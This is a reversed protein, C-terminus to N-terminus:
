IIEARFHFERSALALSPLRTPFHTTFISITPLANNRPSHTTFLTRPVNHNIDNRLASAPPRPQSRSLRILTFPLLHALSLFSRKWDTGQMPLYALRRRQDAALETVLVM